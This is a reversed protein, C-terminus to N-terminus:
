QPVGGGTLGLLLFIMRVINKPAATAASAIAHPPPCCVPGPAPVADVVGAAVVVAGAGAVVSVDAAAAPVPEACGACDNPSLIRAVPM